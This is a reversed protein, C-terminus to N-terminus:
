GVVYRGKGNGAEVRRRNRRMKGTEQRHLPGFSERWAGKLYAGGQGGFKERRARPMALTVGGVAGIATFLGQVMRANFRRVRELHAAEVNESKM